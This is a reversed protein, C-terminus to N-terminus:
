ARESGYFRFPWTLQLFYPNWKFDTKNKQGNRSSLNNKYVLVTGYFFLYRHKKDVKFNKM